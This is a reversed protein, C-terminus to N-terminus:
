LAASKATVYGLDAAKKESFAVYGKRDEGNRGTRAINYKYDALKLVATPSESKAHVTLDSAQWTHDNPIRAICERNDEKCTMELWKYLIAYATVKATDSTNNRGANVEAACFEAIDENIAKSHESIKIILDNANM